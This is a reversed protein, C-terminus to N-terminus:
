SKCLGLFKASRRLSLKYSIYFTAKRIGSMNSIQTRLSNNYQKTQQQDTQKRWAGGLGLQVKLDSSTSWVPVENRLKRIFFYYFRNLVIFTHLM